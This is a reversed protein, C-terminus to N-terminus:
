RANTENWEFKGKPLEILWRLHEDCNWPNGGLRMNQLEFWAILSEPLTTLKCNSVDFSNLRFKKGTSNSGFANEDIYILNKSGTLNLNQFSNIKEFVEQFLKCAFQTHRLFCLRWHRGFAAHKEHNFLNFHQKEVVWTGTLIKANWKHGSLLPDHLKSNKGFRRTHIPKWRSGVVGSPQFILCLEYKKEGILLTRYTLCIRCLEPCIV